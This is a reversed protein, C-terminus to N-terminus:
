AHISSHTAMGEELPAGRGLSPVWTERTEQVPLCTRWWERWRPLGHCGWSWILALANKKKLPVSSSIQLTPISICIYPICMYVRPTPPHISLNPNIYTCVRTYFLCSTRVQKVQQIACPAWGLARHYGLHIPHTPAPPDLLSPIHTYM